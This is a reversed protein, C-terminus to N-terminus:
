MNRDRKRGRKCVDDGREVCPLAAAIRNHRATASTTRIRRARPGSTPTVRGVSHARSKSDRFVHAARAALGGRAELELVGLSAQAPTSRASGNVALRKIVIKNAYAAHLRAVNTNEGLIAVLGCRQGLGWGGVAHTGRLAADRALRM